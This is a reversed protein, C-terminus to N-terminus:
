TRLQRARRLRLWVGAVLVLPVGLTLWSVLDFVEDGVLASVLGVLSLVALLLPWRFIM